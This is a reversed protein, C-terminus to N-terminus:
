MEGGQSTTKSNMHDRKNDQFKSGLVASNSLNGEIVRIETFSPAMCRLPRRRQGKNREGTNM